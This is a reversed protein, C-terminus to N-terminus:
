LFMVGKIKDMLIDLSDSAEKFTPSYYYIHSEEKYILFVYEKNMIDIKMEGINIDSDYWKWFEYQSNFVRNNYDEGGEPTMGVRFSDYDTWEESM